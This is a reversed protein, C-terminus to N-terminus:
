KEKKKVIENIMLATYGQRHGNSVQYGKRRKKKFIIIKGNRGHSLITAKASINKCDTGFLQKKGDDYMLFNSIDYQSGEEVDISPVKIEEGPVIRFQHGKIEAYGYM